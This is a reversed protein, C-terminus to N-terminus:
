GRLRSLALVYRVISIVIYTIIVIYVLMLGWLNLMLKESKVVCNDEAYQNEENMLVKNQNAFKNNETIHQALVRPNTSSSPQALTYDTLTQRLLPKKAAQCWYPMDLFHTWYVLPSSPLWLQRWELRPLLSKAATALHVRFSLILHHVENRLDQALYSGTVNSHM